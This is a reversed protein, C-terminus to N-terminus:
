LRKLKKKDITMKHQYCGETQVVTYRKGGDIVETCQYAPEFKGIQVNTPYVWDGVEIPKDSYKYAKKRGRKAM